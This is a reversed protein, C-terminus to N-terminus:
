AGALEAMLAESINFNSTVNQVDDNDELADMLKLVTRANDAELEVTNAAIRSIEASATAIGATELASSVEQYVEPACHVEFFDGVQVVDGAGAELAVEFLREESVDTASVQFIGKREFMWAVCGTSGLNGGHVEFVKRIEGATRNRNDTLIECLVAVGGPGYGEYLVEDYSEGGLEGTGKKVAKEITDAPMSAKKARDIAYRLALNAAPDGGRKAAVIILRALKGFLKGRKKDVLGKKFAINAWHSHGAM